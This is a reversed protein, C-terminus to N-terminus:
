AGLAELRNKALPAKDSTPYREVVEQYSKKAQDLMNLVEFCRAAEYSANAQWVRVGDPSEPYGYGYAVKFFNRIAEKYARKEFLIEGVMFRARASVERDTQAVVQEYRAMADDTRGLNQQAWASEYRLEPVYASNPHAILAKDLLDFSESWKKQQALAQGAHLRALAQFEQNSGPREFSRQYAVLAADYKKDGFLSEAIMLQADAALEGQPFEALQKEFTKAAPERQGQQYLSWGLKHASKEGLESNQSKDRAAQYHTAAQAYDRAQYAHEGLHYLSDGVLPSANHERALTAFALVAQDPKDSSRLAWALEYLVKDAGAFKPDASLVARFNEAAKDYEKMGAFCLGRLYLAESREQRPPDSALFAAVDDLAATYDAQQERAMARAHRAKPTVAHQPYKELLGTLSAIAAPYDKAALQCWALGYEAHPALPSQPWTAAVKQYDKSAASFDGAASAYEGLRYHAQDLLKSDPYEAALKRLTSIAEASHKERQVSALALLAEDARKGRPAAVLSAGLAQAAAEPQKLEAHASGLLYQAEAALEPSKLKAALPGLWAVVEASKRSVHLALGRRVRWLDVDAHQPYKEALEAYRREAQDYQKLQLASEAAVYRVDAALPKDAYDALFQDCYATAAQYDAQGLSAFAAMYLAQPAQAHKPHGKALAAYVRISEGRRNPIEYLADAQDMMLPVAFDAGASKPLAREVTALAESPKAHKLYARALWHAADDATDGGADVAATLWKIAAALDGAEASANGAALLAPQRYASKPFRDPITAYVAAAEALKKAAQLSQAQRMAALDALQFGKSAAASGFWRAAVEFDGKTSLTEARRMIVEARLPHRPYDKLFRDFATAAPDIQGQDQRAVGLAYLADALLPSDPYREVVQQYAIVAREKHGRAYLAEGQYYLAQALEKSKPFKAALTEFTAAAADYLEAKGGQALSYQALGLNLYSSDALEGHPHERIVQQLSEAAADYQKLLLRCVGLYHRAKPALPDAPFEKLFNQWEDAALDYVGRDQFVVADRFQRVAAPPSAAKPAEQGALPAAASSVVLAVVFAQAWKANAFTM